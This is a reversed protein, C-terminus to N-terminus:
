LTHWFTVVSTGLMVGSFLVARFLSLLLLNTSNPMLLFYRPIHDLLPELFSIVSFLAIGVDCLSCILIRPLFLPKVLLLPPTSVISLVLSSALIINPNNACSYRSLGPDLFGLLICDIACIGLASAM